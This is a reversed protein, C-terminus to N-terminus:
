WIGRLKKVIPNDPTNILKGKFSIKILEQLSEKPWAPESTDLTAVAPVYGAVNKNSSIRIWQSMALEAM